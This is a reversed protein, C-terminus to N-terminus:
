ASGPDRRPFANRARGEQGSSAGHGRSEHTDSGRASSRPIVIQAIAHKYILHQTSQSAVIVTFNDFGRVWGVLESGDLLVLKIETNEKRVQNLFGDQLNMTTRAM